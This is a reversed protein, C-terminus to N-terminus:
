IGAARSLTRLADEPPLSWGWFGIQSYLLFTQGDLDKLYLGESDSLPHVPPLSVYLHESEIPFLIFNQKM